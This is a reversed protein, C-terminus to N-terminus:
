PHGGDFECREGARNRILFRAPGIEIEGAIGVVHVEDRPRLANKKEPGSPFGNSRVVISKPASNAV